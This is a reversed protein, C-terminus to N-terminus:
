GELLLTEVEGAKQRDTWSALRLVSLSKGGRKGTVKQKGKSRQECIGVSGWSLSAEPSWAQGRLGQRGTPIGAASRVARATVRAGRPCPRALDGTLSRPQAGAEEGETRPGERDPGSGQLRRSKGQQKEDCTDRTAVFDRQPQEDTFSYPTKMRSLHKQPIYLESKVTKKKELSTGGDRAQM